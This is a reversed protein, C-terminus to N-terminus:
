VVIGVYGEGAERVGDFVRFSAAGGGDENM